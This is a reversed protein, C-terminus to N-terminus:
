MKTLAKKRFAEERDKEIIRFRKLQEASLFKEIRRHYRRIIEVMREVTKNHEEKMARVMEHIVPSIKQIQEETLHLDARLNRLIEEPGPPTGPRSLLIGLVTGAALGLLCAGLM